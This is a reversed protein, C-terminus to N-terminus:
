KTIESLNAIIERICTEPSTLVIKATAEECLKKATAMSAQALVIVDADQCTRALGALRADHGKVDGSSLLTMAETDLYSKIVVSKGIQDAEMQIKSVTPDVTTPATALVAINEGRMVAEKCMADDISVIPFDFSSRFEKVFPTLSSCTVCVLDPSELSASVLDLYLKKRNEPPFYGKKKANTVLFEDLLSTIEIDKGYAKLLQNPFSEYVSRVTHLLTVKM